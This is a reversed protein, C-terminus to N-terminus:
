LVIKELKVGVVWVGDDLLLIEVFNRYFVFFFEWGGSGNYVFLKLGVVKVLFEYVCKYSWSVKM